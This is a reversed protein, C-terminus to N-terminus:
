GEEMNWVIEQIVQDWDALLHHWIGHIQKDSPMQTTSDPHHTMADQSQWKHRQHRAVWPRGDYRGWYVTPTRASVWLPSSEDLTILWWLALGQPQTTCTTMTTITTM